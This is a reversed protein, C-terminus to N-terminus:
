INNESRSFEYFNLNVFFSFFYTIYIFKLGGLSSIINQYTLMKIPSIFNFFSLIISIKLIIIISIDSQPQQVSFNSEDIQWIKKKTKM